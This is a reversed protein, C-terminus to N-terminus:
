NELAYSATASPQVQLLRANLGLPDPNPFSGNYTVVVTVRGIAYAPDQNNPAPATYLATFQSNSTVIDGMRIRTFVQNPTASPTTMDSDSGQIVITAPVSFVAGPQVPAVNPGRSNPTALAGGPASGYAIACGRAASRACETLSSKVYFYLSAECVAYLLLFVLPILVACAAAVEILASGSTRNVRKSKM